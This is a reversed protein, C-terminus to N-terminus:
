PTGFEHGLKVGASVLTQATGIHWKDEHSTSVVAEPVLVVVPWGHAARREKFAQPLADVGGIKGDESGVYLFARVM